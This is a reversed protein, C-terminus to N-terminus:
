KHNIIEDVVELNSAISWAQAMCGRPELTGAEYIEAVQGTCMHDLTQEFIQYYTVCEKIASKSFNETQLMAMFFSGNLFPWVTGNHYARDRDPQSGRYEAKYDPDKMSLTKLGVPTLLRKKCIEVVKKAKDGSLLPHPLSLCYLQNPRVSDDKYHLKVSDYLCQKDENWFVSVFNSKLKSALIELREAEKDKKMIKALESAIKLTNFWLAQIEVAKGSRDLVPINNVQGDMWTLNEHPDTWAICGDEQDMHIGYLTGKEYGKLIKQISPFIKKAFEPDKKVELYQHCAVVFWLPADITHYDEIGTIRNPLLGNKIKKAFALLLDKAEDYRKPILFLGKFSILSDRGWDKFWPYGALVKTQKQHTIIYDVSARLLKQRLSALPHPALKSTRKKLFLDLKLDEQLSKHSHKSKAEAKLIMTLKSKGKKVAWSFVGPNWLDETGFDGNHIHDTPYHFNRFWDADERYEAKDSGIGFAFENSRIVTYKENSHQELESIAGLNCNKRCTVLPRFELSLAEPSSITYEIAVLNRGKLMNIRKEIKIDKNLEFQWTPFPDQTFAKLYKSGQPYAVDPAYQNVGLEWSRDELKVVEDIKSVLLWRELEKDAM